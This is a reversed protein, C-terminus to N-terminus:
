EGFVDIISYKIPDDEKLSKAFKIINAIRPENNEDFLEPQECLSNIAFDDVIGINKLGIKKKNGVISHTLFSELDKSRESTIKGLRYYLDQLYVKLRYEIVNNIDTMTDYILINKDPSNYERLNRGYVYVYRNYKEKSLFVVKNRGRSNVVYPEEGNKRTIEFINAILKKITTGIAVNYFLRTTFKINVMRKSIIEDSSNTWDYIDALLTVVKEYCKYNSLQLANIIDKIESQSKRNIKDQVIRSQEVGLFYDFCDINDEKKVEANKTIQNNIKNDSLYTKLTKSRKIPEPLDFQSKPMDCPESSANLEKTITDIKIKSSEVFFRFIRGQLCSGLRGVRGLLNKKDLEANDFQGRAALFFLNNANLNVGKLLTTTCFIHNLGSKDDLFIAEIQRKTFTDLDGNHIAVGKKIFDILEFEEDIYEALYNILAAKRQTLVQDKKINNTFMRVISSIDDKRCFYLSKDSLSNIQHSACIKYLDYKISDFKDGKNIDDIVIPIKQFDNFYGRNYTVDSLYFQGKEKRILYKVSSTPSFLKDIIVLNDQDLTIFKSIFSTYPENIYPMLFILPINYSDLISIAKALLISRESNQPKTVNALDQVEDFVVYDFKFNKFTNNFVLYREQTFLFITKDSEPIIYPAESVTINDLKNHFYSNINKRYENILSKTPLIVIFNKIYLKDLAFLLSKLITGSKGYSTPASVIINKRMLIAIFMDIQSDTLAMKSDFIKRTEYNLETSFDLPLEKAAFQILQQLDLKDAITIITTLLPDQVHRNLREIIFNLWFVIYAIEKNKIKENQEFLISNFIKIFITNLNYIDNLKSNDKDCSLFYETYGSFKELYEFENPKHKPM